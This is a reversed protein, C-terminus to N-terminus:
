FRNETGGHALFLISLLLKVFLACFPTFNNRFNCVVKLFSIAKRSKENFHQHILILLLPAVM